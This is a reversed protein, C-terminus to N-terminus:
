LIAHITLPYSIIYSYFRAFLCLIQLLPPSIRDAGQSGSGSLLFRAVHFPPQSRKARLFPTRALALSCCSWGQALLSPFQFGSPVSRGGRDPSRASNPRSCAPM